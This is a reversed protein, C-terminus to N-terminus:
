CNPSVSKAIGTQCWWNPTSYYTIHSFIHDYIKHLLRYGLLKLPKIGIKPGFRYCNNGIPSCEDQNPEFNPDSTALDLLCAFEQSKLKKGLNLMGFQITEAGAYKASFIRSKKIIFCKLIGTTTPTLLQFIKCRTLDVKVMNFIILIKVFFSFLSKSNPLYIDLLFYFYM